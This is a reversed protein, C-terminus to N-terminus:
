PYANITDRCVVEVNQCLVESQWAAIAVNGRSQVSLNDVSIIDLGDLGVKATDGDLEVLLTNEKNIALASPANGRAIVNVGPYEAIEVSGNQRVYVLLSRLFPHHGFRFYVGFWDDPSQFAEFKFVAQVAGDRMSFNQIVEVNIGGPANARLRKEGFFVNDRYLPGAAPALPLGKIKLFLHVYAGIRKLLEDKDKYTFVELGRVDFGLETLSRGTVRFINKNLYLAIGLEFHVNPNNHTMDAVVIDTHEIELRMQSIMETNQAKFSAIDSYIPSPAVEKTGITSTVGYRSGIETAIEEYMQRTATDFPIAFFVGYTQKIGVIGGTQNEGGLNSRFAKRRAVLVDCKAKPLDLAPV